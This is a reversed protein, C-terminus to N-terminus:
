FGLRYFGAQVTCTANNVYGNATIAYRHARFKGAETGSGRPPQSSGVYTVNGNFSQSGISIKEDPADNDPFNIGAGVTVNAGHYLATHPPVYERAAEASYFTQKQIITNRLIQSEISSMNTASIGMILLLVMIILAVVIVSGEENKLQSIIKKM